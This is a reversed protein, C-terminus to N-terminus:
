PNSPESAPGDPAAETEPEPPELARDLIRRQADSPRTVGAIWARRVGSKATYVGPFPDADSIFVEGSRWIRVEGAVEGRRHHRRASRIVKRVLSTGRVQGPLWYYGEGYREAYHGVPADASLFVAGFPTDVRIALAEWDAHGHAHGRDHGHTRLVRDAGARYHRGVETRVVGSEYRVGAEPDAQPDTEARAPSAALALM